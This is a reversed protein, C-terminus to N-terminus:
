DGPERVVRGDAVVYRVDRVNAIDSLPDAGIVLIDALMGAAVTGLRDGMQLIEANGSTAAILVELNSLGADKLFGLEVYYDDPYRRENEFPIDTGVGVTVGADHAAKVMALHHEHDLTFRRSMTFYFGGRPIGAPPYGYALLNYFATLTPVFNTGSTAMADITEQSLDLPHEISDARAQAAWETYQGFSDVAVPIGHLHAEDIAAAIEEKTYPATLKIWDAHQRIQERVALRWDWPGNAVRLDSREERKGSGVATIEDGHGGRSAIMQGSWFVRPGVLMGREVAEKVRLAVDGTTGMDRVATIGAGILQELLLTGRIAAAAESDSYRTFDDGRHQTFHVHSDILGPVIYLGTTDIERDASTPITIAEAEGAAVIRDGRIVVAADEIPKSDTGLILTGGRLVLVPDDSHDRPPVPVRRPDDTTAPIGPAPDATALSHGALIVAMVAAFSAVQRVM